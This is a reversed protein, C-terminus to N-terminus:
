PQDAKRALVLEIRSPYVRTVQLANATSVLNELNTFSVSGERLGSMDLTLRISGPRLAMLALRSGGMVVEVRPPPKESVAMDDPLGTLVVPVQLRAQGYRGADVYLWFLSAIVLSAVKLGANRTVVLPLNM